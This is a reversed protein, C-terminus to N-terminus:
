RRLTRKKAYVCIKNRYEREEEEEKKKRKREKNRARIRGTENRDKNPQLEHLTQMSCTKTL